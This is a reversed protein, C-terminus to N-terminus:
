LNECSALTTTTPLKVSYYDYAPLRLLLILRKQVDHSGYRRRIHDLKEFARDYLELRKKRPPQAQEIFSSEKEVNAMEKRPLDLKSGPM